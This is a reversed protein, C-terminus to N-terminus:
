SMVGVQTAIIAIVLFIIAIVAIFKFTTANTDDKAPTGSPCVELLDKTAGSITDPPQALKRYNGYEPSATTQQSENEQQGQEDM